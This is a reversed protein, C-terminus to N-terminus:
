DVLGVNDNRSITKDSTTGVYARSCHHIRRSHDVIIQFSLTPKTSQNTCLTRVDHPCANWRVHTCDVSGVAGPFGIKSYIEMVNKLDDGDPM